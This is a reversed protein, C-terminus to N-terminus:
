DKETSSGDGDDDLHLLKKRYFYGTLDSGESLISKKEPEHHYLVNDLIGKDSLCEFWTSRDLYGFNTEM